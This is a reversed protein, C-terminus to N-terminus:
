DNVPNSFYRQMNYTSDYTSRSRRSFGCAVAMPLLPIRVTPAKECVDLKSEELSSAATSSPHAVCSTSVRSGTPM